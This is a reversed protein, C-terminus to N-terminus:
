SREETEERPVLERCVEECIEFIYLCAEVSNRVRRNGSDNDVISGTM